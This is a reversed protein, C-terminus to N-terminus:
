AEPCCSIIHLDDDFFALNNGGVGTEDTVVVVRISKFLVLLQHALFQVFGRLLLRFVLLIFVFLM